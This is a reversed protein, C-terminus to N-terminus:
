DSVVSGVSWEGGEDQDDGGVEGGGEAGDRDERKVEGEDGGNEGSEANAAAANSKGNKEHKDEEFQQDIGMVEERKKMEALMEYGTVHDAANVVGPTTEGIGIHDIEQDGWSSWMSRPCQVRERCGKDCQLAHAM